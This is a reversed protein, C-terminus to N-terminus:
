LPLLYNSSWLFDMSQSKFQTRYESVRLDRSASTTEPSPVCKGLRNQANRGGEGTSLCPPSGGLTSIVVSHIYPVAARSGWGLFMGQSAPLQSLGERWVAAFVLLNKKGGQGWNWEHLSQNAWTNILSFAKRLEWLRESHKPFLASLGWQDILVLSRSTGKLWRCCMRNMDAVELM